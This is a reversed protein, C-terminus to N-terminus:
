YVIHFDGICHQKIYIYTYFLISVVRGFSGTGLTRIREFEELGSTGETKKLWRKEFDNKLKNLIESYQGDAGKAKLYLFTM